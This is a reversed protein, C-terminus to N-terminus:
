NKDKDSQLVVFKTQRSRCWDDFETLYRFYVSYLDVSIHRVRRAFLKFM